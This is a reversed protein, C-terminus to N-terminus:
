HCRDGNTLIQYNNDEALNRRLTKSGARLEEPLYILSNPYETEGLKKLTSFTFTVRSQEGGRPNHEM